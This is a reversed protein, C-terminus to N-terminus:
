ETQVRRFLYADQREPWDDPAYESFERTTFAETWLQRKRPDNWIRWPRLLEFDRYFEPPWWILRFRTETFDPGTLERIRALNAADVVLIQVDMLDNTNMEEPFYRYRVNRLYWMIPWMAKEDLMAVAKEGERERLEHAFLNPLMAKFDPTGHAYVLFENAQNFNVFNLRWAAHFTTLLLIGTAAITVIRTGTGREVWRQFVWGACLCTPLIPHVLLWPMKEGAVSYLIWAAATWWALLLPVPAGRRIRRFLFVTGFLSLAVPLYEYLAALFPYYFWPQGGRQVDHQELWYGLSGSLGTMIGSLNSYLTTFLTLDIFWFLAMLLGWIREGPSWLRFHFGIFALSISLMFFAAIAYYSNPRILPSLFPVVLTLMLFSLEGAARALLPQRRRKLIALGTFFSGIIFGNIFSVEKVAFSFAMAITVAFLWHAKRTQLYRLGAYMWILLFLVVYAENRAYRNYFLCVPSITLLLAAMWAGIRGLYRRYGWLLLIVASGALAQGARLPADSEGVLHFILANFIFLFPGHTIPTHSYQGHKYLHHSYVAHVGEDYSLAREDLRYFRLATGALFLLIWAPIEIGRWFSQSSPRM